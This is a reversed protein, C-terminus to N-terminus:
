LIKNRGFSGFVDYDFTFEVDISNGEFEVPLPAFPSTLEVAAKAAGDVSISGSSKLNKNIFAQWRQWNQFCYNFTKFYQRKSSEM